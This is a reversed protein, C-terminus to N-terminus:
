KRIGLVSCTLFTNLINYSPIRVRPEYEYSGLCGGPKLLRHIEKLVIPWEETRLANVFVRFQIYDFSNDPFNLGEIVNGLSFSVNPLKFNVNVMAAIDVGVFNSNPYESAMDM